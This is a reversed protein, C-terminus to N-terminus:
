PLEGLYPFAYTFIWGFLLLNAIVSLTASPSKRSLLLLALSVSGLAASIVGVSLTYGRGEFEVGYGWGFAFVLVSGMLAVVFTAATRRWPVVAARFAPYCWACYALSPIFVVVARPIGLFYLLVLSLPMPCTVTPLNSSVLAGTSTALLLLSGALTAALPRVRDPFLPM